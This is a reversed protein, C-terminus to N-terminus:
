RLSNVRGYAPCIAAGSLVRQSLTERWVAMPHGSVSFGLVKYEFGIKESLTFDGGVGAGGDEPEDLLAGGAATVGELYRDPLAWILKKRTVGFEDFVGCLVMSRLLDVPPRVRSAFDGFSKFPVIAREKLQRSLVVSVGNIMKFPLM